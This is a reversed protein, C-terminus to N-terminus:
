TLKSLLKRNRESYPAYHLGVDLLTARKLIGRRHSFVEFSERGHYSGIGSAGVGGFPIHHSVYYLVTDNIGVDGSQTEAVVKEATKRSESFVYLSLPSPYRKTYAIAADIDDVFIVPLIPGFIEGEMVADDPEVDVLITPAIYLADRDTQGGHYVTAGELMKNLRDFHHENIIRTLHPSPESSNKPDDGSDGKSDDKSDGKSDDGYREILVKKLGELVEQKRSKHVLLYDPAVCSQGNNLFKGWLIRRCAVGIKADKDIICPNKGGLELTVPTLNKAAAAMIIKGVGTSGTYFIHDFNQELLSTTEPIGGQVVAYADNDLYERVGKEVIAATAPALESPKLIACCGASIAGVLPSFVLHLPYNWTGIILSVGLPQRHIASKAPLTVLPSPVSEPRMWDALHKLTYDIDGIVVNTESLWAEFAPRGLDTALAECIEDNKEIIFRRLARLQGVRYNLPKTRHSSFTERLRSLVANPTEGARHNDGPKSNEVTTM